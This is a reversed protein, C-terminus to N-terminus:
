ASLQVPWPIAYRRMSSKSEKNVIVVLLKGTLVTLAGLVKTMRPSDWLLLWLKDSSAIMPMAAINADTERKMRLRASGADRFCIIAYQPPFSVM